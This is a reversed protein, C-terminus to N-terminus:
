LAASTRQASVLETAARRLDADIAAFTRRVHEELARALTATRAKAGEIARTHEIVLYAAATITAGALILVFSGILVWRLNRYGTAGDM